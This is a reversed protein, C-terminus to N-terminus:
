LETMEEKLKLIKQVCFMRVIKIQIHIQALYLTTQALVHALRANKKCTCYLMELVEDPAPNLTNWKISLEDNGNAMLGYGVPSQINPHAEM